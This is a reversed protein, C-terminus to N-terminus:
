KKLSQVEQQLLKIQKNAHILYLTLEEVKEMLKQQMEGIAIGQQQVEAAPPVNPLHKNQQIFQEVQELTQLRYAPDFVYDPWAARNKVRIEEAIMKGGVRFIYGPADTTTGISFNGDNDVFVRDLGGTRIVVRGTTNAFNTGIKIDDGAAQLVGKDVGSVQLQITPSQDNIIVATAAATAPIGNIHLMAEPANTKIGLKGDGTFRFNETFGGSNGYGFGIDSSSASTYLQLLSTQVGIGYRSAGASEYFSIKDGTEAPFTMRVVPDTGGIGINGTRNIVLTKLVDAPGNANGFAPEQYLEFNGNTNNHRLLSAYGDVMLKRGNGNNYANFSIGPPSTEVTLGATLSGFMANTEGTVGNVVLKAQTPNSAGIGVNGSGTTLAPGSTSSAILGTGDVSTFNGGAGSASAGRVGFSLESFGSVGTGQNGTARGELATALFGTATVSFLRTVANALTDSFPLKFDNKKWEGNSRIYLTHDTTSYVALGNAPSAIANMQATTMRPLLIGRNTGGDVELISSAHPAGPTGGIKVQAKAATFVLSACLLLFATQKM